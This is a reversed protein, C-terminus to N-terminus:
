KRFSSEFRRASRKEAAQNFRLNALNPPTVGFVDAERRSEHGVDVGNECLLANLAPHIRLRLTVHSRSSKRAACQDVRHRRRFAARDPARQLELDATAVSRRH